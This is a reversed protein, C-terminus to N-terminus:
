LSENSVGMQELCQRLVPLTRAVRAQLTAPKELCIQSMEQYSREEQFRLLLASRVHPALKRLCKVLQDRLHNKAIESDVQQDSSIDPLEDVLTVRQERRRTMKLADLCRNRAISFLWTRLSSNGKFSSLGEYAQVFTMQHADEALGKETVMQLCFRYIQNGYAEMLFKLVKRYDKKSLAEIAIAEPELQTVNTMMLPGIFGNTGLILVM